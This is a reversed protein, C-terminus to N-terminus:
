PGVLLDRLKNYQSIAARKRDAIRARGCTFRKSNIAPEFAFDGIVIAVVGGEDGFRPM